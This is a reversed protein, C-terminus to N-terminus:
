AAVERHMYDLAAHLRRLEVVNQARVESITSLHSLQVLPQPRVLLKSTRIGTLVQMPTLWTATSPRKGLTRAPIPHSRSPHFGIDGAMQHAANEVRIASGQVRATSRQVPAGGNRKGLPLIGHHLVAQSTGRWSTKCGIQGYFSLRPRIFALGHQRFLIDLHLARYTGAEADPAASPFLWNYSSIDDKLSLVYKLEGEDPRGM